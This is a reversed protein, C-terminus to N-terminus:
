GFPPPPPDSGQAPVALVEDGEQQVTKDGDLPCFEALPADPRAGACPDEVDGSAPGGWAFAGVMASPPIAWALATGTLPPGGGLGAGLAVARASEEAPPVSETRGSAAGPAFGDGAAGGAV